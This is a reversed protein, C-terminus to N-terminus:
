LSATRVPWWVGWSDLRIIDGEWFFPLSRMSFRKTWRLPNSGRGNAVLFDRHCPYFRHPKLYPFRRPSIALLQAQTKRRHVELGHTTPTLTPSCRFASKGFAALAGGDCNPCYDDKSQHSQGHPYGSDYPLKFRAEAPSVSDKLAHSHRQHM